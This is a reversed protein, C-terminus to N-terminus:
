NCKELTTTSIIPLDMTFGNCYYTSVGLPTEDYIESPKIEKNHNITVFFAFYFCTFIFVTYAIIELKKM